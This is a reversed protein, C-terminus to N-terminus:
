LKWFRLRLGDLIKHLGIWWVPRRGVDVRAYGQMGARFWGMAQHAVAGDAVFVNRGEVVEAAPNLRSVELSFTEQPRANLLFSGTLEPRLYVAYQEPVHLAVKWGQQPVFSLLLEGLPVVEGERREVEGALVTGSEPACITSAELKQDIRDLDAQIVDSRARAQAAESLDEAALAHWLELECVERESLLRKRDVALERTDLELLPQGTAVVDGPRVHTVGITGEFPAAIQRTIAPQLECQVTVVYPLTGFGVWLMFLLAAVLAVKRGWRGKELLKALLSYATEVGHQVLGREAQELVFLGPMVPAVISQIKNLEEEKFTGQGGKQLGIVAVCKDNVFVPITAVAGGTSEHWRRHFAHCSHFTASDKRGAAQACLIRGADLCEEMAQILMRAGPNRQSVDDWGSVCLLKVSRGRVRGLCVRECAVKTKLGNVMAFAWEMTSQYQGVRGASSAESRTASADKRNPKQTVALGGALAVLAALEGSVRRFEEVECRVVVGISGVADDDDELIPIGIAAFVAETRSAQFQRATTERQYFARLRVDECINVWARRSEANVTFTEELNGSTDGVNLSAFPSDFHKAILELVARYYERRSVANRVAARLGDVIAIPPERHQQTGSSAQEITTTAM